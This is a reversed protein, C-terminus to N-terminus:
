ELVRIQAPLTVVIEPKGKYDVIKGRVMIQKMRYTTPAFNAAARAPIFITMTHNPFAAGINLFANGNASVRVHAVLYPGHEGQEQALCVPALLVALVVAFLWKM